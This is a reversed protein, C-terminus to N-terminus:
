EMIGERLTVAIAEARNSVELKSLISSVHARATSRSISLAEAIEPNSMGEVILALVERERPTLDHGLAPEQSAAKILAQTAEPALMSQGAHAARVADALEEVSVNKLLYGIAGAQLVEKVLDNEQFSTLAVVQINPWKDRIVRTAMTGDMEPMVLDMLVVDPQLQECIEVAERGDRAEAVLELDASVKLFTSLGKRVMDHDDVVMVRIVESAAMKGEKALGTARSGGYAGAILEGARAM